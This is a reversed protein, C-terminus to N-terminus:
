KKIKNILVKKNKVMKNFLLDYAMDVRRQSEAEPLDTTQKYTVKPKTEKKM